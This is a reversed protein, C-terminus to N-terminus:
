TSRFIAAAEARNKQVEDIQEELFARRLKAMSVKDGFHRRVKGIVNACEADTM